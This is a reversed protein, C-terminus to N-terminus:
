VCSYKYKLSFINWNRFDSGVFVFSMSKHLNENRLFILRNISFSFLVTWRPSTHSSIPHLTRLYHHSLVTVGGLSTERASCLVHSFGRVANPGISTNIRFPLPSHYVTPFNANSTFFFFLNPLSGIDSPCCSVCFFTVLRVAAKVNTSSTDHIKWCHLADRDCTQIIIWQPMSSPLCLVSATLLSHVMEPHGNSFPIIALLTSHSFHTCKRHQQYFPLVFLTFTLLSGGNWWLNFWDQQKPNLYPFLISHLVCNM